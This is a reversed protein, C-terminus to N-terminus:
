PSPHRNARFLAALSSVSSVAAVVLVAAPLILLLSWSAPGTASLATAFTIAGVALAGLIAFSLTLLGGATEAFHSLRDMRSARAPSDELAM